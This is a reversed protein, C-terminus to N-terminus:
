RETVVSDLPIDHPEPYITELRGLEFGVGITHPKVPMAAIM